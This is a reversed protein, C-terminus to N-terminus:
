EGVRDVTEKGGLSHSSRYQDGALASGTAGCGVIAVRATALKRQGEAGVGHFLIQRSYREDLYHKDPVSNRQSTEDSKSQQALSTM